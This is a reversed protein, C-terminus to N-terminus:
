IPEFEKKTIINTEGESKAVFFSCCGDAFLNTVSRFMDLIRDVALFLGIGEAPLEWFRLIIIIVILSGSPVSAIGISTM